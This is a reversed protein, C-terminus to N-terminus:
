FFKVTEASGVHTFRGPTCTLIIIQTDKGAATIAAGMTELRSPDSFGLADDIILPVGEQKSVIRAAALRALIGLQEKAGISLYEFPVTVGNLTRTHIAWDDGLEIEFQNGFVIQGLREIAEKLPKVYVKRAADRNKNLTYWLLEIAKARGLISNLNSTSKELARQATDMTEYRGDAQAQQLRDSLIALSKEEQNLDSQARELASTANHMLAEISDPSYAKLKEVLVKEDSKLTKVKVFAVKSRNALDEDSESSRVSKLRSKMSQLAAKFGAHNQQEIRVQADIERHRNRASDLKEQADELGSEIADLRSKSSSVRDSAEASSGPFGQEPLRREAYEKIEQQYSFLAQEIEDLSDGDLIEQERTKLRDLDRQAEARHENVAVAEELDNVNFEAMMRSLDGESVELEAQLEAASQPPILEISVAGPIRVVTQATITRSEMESEGLSIEEGNIDLDIKSEAMVSVMTAATNRTSRAIVARNEAQRLQTLGEDDIKISHVARLSLQREESIKLLQAVRRQALACKDRTKLHQEDAIALDYAKKASKNLARQATVASQAARVSDSVEQEEHELPQLRKSAEDVKAQSDAVDKILARRDELAEVASNEITIADALERRMENVEARYKKIEEWKESYEAAKEILGPVEQRIRRVERASREHDQVVSAVEELALRAEEVSNKNKEVVAKEADFRPKGSKLSFYKEYELQAAMYFDSDDTGVSTSGAVEDLANALGSSGQVDALSIREGQDVLLAEWLAMDVTENLVRLVEEHAERGTLQRNEPSLISLTTQTNKNFTKSYAFHYEGSTFEVEITSGVDKDVPKIAKVAQKKSSDLEAFLLRVAEVITSKGIENPGEVLTVNASFQIQCEDIGRWNKIALKLIQM